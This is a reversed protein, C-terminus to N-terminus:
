GAALAEIIKSCGGKCVHNAHDGISEFKRGVIKSCEFEYDSSKIFRDIVELATPEKFGLKDTGAELSRMGTIWIAAGLAGCAGGSLGIGGALGAAMVSHMESAGMKQALLAACSVSAAPTEIQEESCAANIENLAAPAYRAAMRFCGITGGKILFFTIMKMTSSSKDIDTIELCNTNNNQARFSEVLRQSAVIARAEAQPGAGLIRYAHAGAALAAGWIMGCQYGHQMIGGALPMAAREEDKLPYGYARNLVHFLTDSCARGNLFTGVTGMSTINKKETSM